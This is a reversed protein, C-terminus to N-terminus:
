RNQAAVQVGNEGSDAQSRTGTQAPTKAETPVVAVPPLLPRGATWEARPICVTLLHKVIEDHVLPKKEINFHDLPAEWLDPRETRINANIVVSLSGEERSLPIGRLWPLNDMVGNSQYLNLCTKVNRPVSPPTVPDLTVLLDVPINAADLKRAIRVVDDAGYSHGVLAIPEHDPHARYKEAITDALRSWQDDQYVVARMGNGNIKKGLDDIGTSFIGIFGRLLYVNGVRPQDSVPTVASMAGGPPTLCGTALLSLAAAL